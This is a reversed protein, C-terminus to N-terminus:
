VMELNYSHKIKNKSGFEIREKKFLRREVKLYVANVKGDMKFCKELM